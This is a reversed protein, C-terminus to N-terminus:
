ITEKKRTILWIFFPAGIVSTLIGIPIETLLLNRSVNDVILLFLAGGLMSAPLLHRYNNGVLRRALHPVVLGVWGILGSVSVSAATILTACIIVAVRVAGVPVGMTRAESDSLTLLNIRWRLLLLPALGLAMPVFAFLVEAPKTKALSGMMWYTIEPLINNPDAVLKIFSTLANCLSSVMIGALIIRLVRNGRAARSVLMVLAITILSAAFAFIMVMRSGLELLIALAAGAAAGSSAGLIDPAAMPNQFVGQYSAGAASLCCGVMCALFIRPLRVNFLIARMQDTALASKTTEVAGNTMRSLIERLKDGLAAFLQPPSIPYRGLMFSVVIGALVLGALALIILTYLRRRAAEAAAAGAFDRPPETKTGSTNGGTTM